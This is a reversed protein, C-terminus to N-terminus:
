DIKKKLKKIIREILDRQVNLSKKDFSTIKLYETTGATELEKNTTDDILKDMTVLKNKFRGSFGQSGKILFCDQDSKKFRVQMRDKDIIGTLKANPYATMKYGAASMFKDIEKLAAQTAQGVADYINEFATPDEAETVKRLDAVVCSVWKGVTMDDIDKIHKQVAKVFQPEIKNLLNKPVGPYDPADFKRDDIPLEKLKAYVRMLTARKDTAENTLIENIKM